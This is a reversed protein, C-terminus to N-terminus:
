PLKNLPFFHGAHVLEFHNSQVVFSHNGCIDLMTRYTDWIIILVDSMFYGVRNYIINKELM